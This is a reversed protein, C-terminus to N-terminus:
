HHITRDIFNINMKETNVRKKICHNTKNIKKFKYLILNKPNAM